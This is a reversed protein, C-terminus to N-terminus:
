FKLVPFPNQNLFYSMKEDTRRGRSHRVWSGSDEKLRTCVSTFVWTRFFAFFLLIVIVFVGIRLCRM